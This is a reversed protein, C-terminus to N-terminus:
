KVSLSQLSKLIGERRKEYEKKVGGGEVIYIYDREAFLALSYLYSEANYHHFYESYLGKMNESTAIDRSSQLHYGGAKLHNNVAGMWMALDGYPDNKVASVKMRVGEASIFKLAQKERDFHAFRDPTDMVFSPGCAAWAFFVIAILFIINTRVSCM